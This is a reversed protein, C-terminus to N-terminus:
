IFGAHVKQFIKPITIVNQRGLQSSNYHNQTPVVCQLLTSMFCLQDEINPFGSKIVAYYLPINVHV